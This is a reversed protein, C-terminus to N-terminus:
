GCLLLLQNGSLGLLNLSLGRQLFGDFNLRFNQRGRFRLYRMVLPAEILCRGEGRIVPVDRLYSKLRAGHDGDTWHHDEDILSVVNQQFDRDHLVIDVDDLWAFEGLNRERREGAFDEMRPSSQFATKMM